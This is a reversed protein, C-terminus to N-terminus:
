GGVKGFYGAFFLIIKAMKQLFTGLFVLILGSKQGYIQVSRGRFLYLTEERVWFFKSSSRLIPATEVFFAVLRNRSPQRM